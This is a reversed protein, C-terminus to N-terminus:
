VTAQDVVTAAQSGSCTQATIQLSRHLAGTHSCRLILLMLLLTFLALLALTPRSVLLTLFLLFLFLLQRDWRPHHKGWLCDVVRSIEHSRCPRHHLRPSPPPAGLHSDSGYSRSSNATVAGASCRPCGWTDVSHGSHGGVCFSVTTDRTRPRYTLASIGLPGSKRRATSAVRRAAAGWWRQRRAWRPSAHAASNPRRGVAAGPSSPPWAPASHRAAALRALCGWLGKFTPRDLPTAHWTACAIHAHSTSM